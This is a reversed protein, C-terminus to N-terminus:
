ANNTRRSAGLLLSPGGPDLEVPAAVAFLPIMRSRCQALVLALWSALAPEKPWFRSMSASGDTYLVLFRVEQELEEEAVAAGVFVDRVGNAVHRCDFRM